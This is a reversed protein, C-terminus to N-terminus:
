VNINRIRDSISLQTKNLIKSIAFSDYGKSYLEKLKANEEETWMKHNDRPIPRWPVALDYLRRKIANETRNLEKALDAYTYRNTRTLSILLNDQDRTWKRNHNIKSPNIMDVRRKDKVWAPEKGLAGEEFNAFNIVGKNLELWKWFEDLYIVKFKKNLPGKYRVPMRLKELRKITYSYTGGYGLAKLLQNVSIYDGSDLHRGLALRGSKCRVANVTRNLSKAIASISKIGWNDELFELEEKSWNKAQGM